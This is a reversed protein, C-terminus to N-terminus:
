CFMFFSVSGSVPSLQVHIFFICCFELGVSRVLWFAVIYLNWPRGCGFFFSVLLFARPFRRKGGFEARCVAVAVGNQKGTFLGVWGVLV